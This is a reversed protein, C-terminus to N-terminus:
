FSCKLNCFISRGRSVSNRGTSGHASGSSQGVISTNLINLLNRVGLILHLKKNFFSNSVSFDLLEYGQIISTKIKDDILRYIPQKGIHRHNIVLKLDAKNINYQLSNNLDFIKGFSPANENDINTSWYSLSASSNMTIRDFLSLTIKHQGGFVSYKDINDYRYKFAEFEILGIKDTITTHYLNLSLNLNKKPEYDITLQYDNSLEPSLHLSGIIYHNIDIFELYLEKLSPSRYGQAYGLRFTWNKTMSYKFLLSPTLRNNYVSHIIYRGSAMINFQKLIAYNLELFPGFEAFGVATADPNSRDIIRDGSGQENSYNVGLIGKIKDNMKHSLIIRNFFTKFNTTDSSQLLSDFTSTEIFFRKDDYTRDYVNFASTCEFFTNEWNKKFSISIDSRVTKYFRDKAYPKYQPRKVIGYDKVDEQNFDYKLLIRSKNSPTYKVFGGYGYQTKPNFPFKPQLISTNNDLRVRELLRLSDTSYQNYNFYRGHLNFTFDSYQYGLSAHLNYQKISEIQTGFEASFQKIQNKKTILNIVGGAANSGYINSLAGKVIEIREINQLNIQSLDINGDLRGIAPIGDILIAVNNASIGRMRITSGLVPDYGIRIVPNIALVQELTIAGRERIEESTILEVKHNAKKYHTPEYQATIVFQDLDISFASTDSEVVDQGILKSSFLLLM